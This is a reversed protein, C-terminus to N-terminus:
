YSVMIEFTGRYTGPAYTTVGAKTHLTAGVRVTANGAGNALIYDGTGDTGDKNFVMDDVLFTGSGVPGTLVVPNGSSIATGTHDTFSVYLAVGAGAGTISYVGEQQAGADSNGGNLLLISTAGSQQATRSGSADLTISAGGDGPNSVSFNGFRIASSEAVSVASTVSFSGHGTYNSQGARAPTTTALLFLLGGGIVRGARRSM